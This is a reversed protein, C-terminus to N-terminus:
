FRNKCTHFLPFSSFWKKKAYLHTLPLSRVWDRLKCVVFRTSQYFFIMDFNIYNLYDVFDLFNNQQIQQSADAYWIESFNLAKPQSM